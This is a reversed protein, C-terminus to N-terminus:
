QRCCGPVFEDVTPIDPTGEWRTATTEALARLRGARILEISAGMAGFYVQVQGGNAAVGYEVRRQETIWATELPAPPRLASRTPSHRRIAQRCILKRWSRVNRLM